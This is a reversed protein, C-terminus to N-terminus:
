YDQSKVVFGGGYQESFHTPSGCYSDESDTFGDGDNDIGDSCEPLHTPQPTAVPIPTSTNSVIDQLNIDQLNPSCSASFSIFVLSGMGFKRVFRPIRYMNKYQM